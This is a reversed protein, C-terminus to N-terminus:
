SKDGEGKGRIELAANPVLHGHLEDECSSDERCTLCWWAEEIVHHVGLLRHHLLGQRQCPLDAEGRRHGLRVGDLGLPPLGQSGRRGEEAGALQLPVQLPM